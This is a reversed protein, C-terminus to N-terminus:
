PMFQEKLIREDLNLEPDFLLTLEKSKDEKIEVRQVNRVEIFDAIMHVPRKAGEAVEFVIESRSPLLAGRWRRPRFVSIPTLCLLESGLPIVPGHVSLNYGTSGAPTAVIVGDCIMREMRKVGDVYIDIKAAQHTARNLYIDNIGHREFKTGQYDTIHAILPHMKVAQAKELREPLADEAYDNLLFGVSGMHMGFVPTGFPIIEHLTHILAGDGGLVVVMDADDLAHQGYKDALKRKADQAIDTNASQFSIRM